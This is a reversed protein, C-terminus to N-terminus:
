REACTHPHGGGKRRDAGANRRAPLLGDLPGAISSATASFSVRNIHTAPFSLACSAAECCPSCGGVRRVPSMDSMPERDVPGTRFLPKHLMLGLPGAGSRLENGLWDFQGEEEATATGFLQANLGIVQWAGAHLAWRDPGFLVRYQKLRALDLPHEAHKGPAIPNDGIDHNGPLFRVLVSLDALMGAAEILEAPHAAADLSIDGCHVVLDPRAEAIWLAVTRCNEVFSTARRALHTDTIVVIRMAPM